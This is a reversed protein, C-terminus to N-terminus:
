KDIPAVPSHLHGAQWGAGHSDLMLLRLVRVKQTRSQGEEKVVFGMPGTQQLLYIRAVLATEM